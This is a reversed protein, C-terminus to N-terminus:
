GHIIDFNKDIVDSYNKELYKYIGINYHLGYRFLAYDNATIDAGKNILEKITEIANFQYFNTIYIRDSKWGNIVFTNKNCDYDSEPDYVFDSGVPILVRALVPGYNMYYFINKIDTVYIGRPDTNEGILYKNGSASTNDASIVKYFEYMPKIGLEPNSYVYIGDSPASGKLIEFNAGRVIDYTEKADKDLANFLKDESNNHSM